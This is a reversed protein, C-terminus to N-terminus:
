QADVNFDKKHHLNLFNFKNKYQSACGDTIYYAMTIPVTIRQKIRAFLLKQFLHVAKTEHVHHESVVVHNLYKLEGGEEDRYIVVFIHLTAQSNDWHNAQVANQLLFAYNEAYDGLVIVEGVKLNDMLEKTFTHQVKVLFRHPRLKELQTEFLEFFDETSKVLVELRCREQTIWQSFKIQDCDMDNLANQLKEIMKELGACKVCNGLNCHQSPPSCMSSFLLDTCTKPYIEECFNLKQLAELMLDPNAHIVCVCQTLTGATGAFVVHPPRLRAFKSFCVKVDPYEEIFAHHATELNFLLLRKQIQEKSGDEARVTVFDRMGPLLKSIEKSCYFQPVKMAVEANVPHAYNYQPVSMIGSKQYLEIGARAMYKTIGFEKAM